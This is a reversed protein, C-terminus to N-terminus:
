TMCIYLNIYIIYIHLVYTTYINSTHQTHVNSICIHTQKCISLYISIIYTTYTCILLMSIYSFVFEQWHEVEHFVTAERRGHFSQSGPALALSHPLPPNSLILSRARARPLAISHLTHTHTHTIRRHTHTHTHTHTHAPQFDPVNVRRQPATPFRLGDLLEEVFKPCTFVYM